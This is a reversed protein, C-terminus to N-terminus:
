YHIVLDSPINSTIIMDDILYFCTKNYLIKIIYLIYLKNVSIMTSKTTLKELRDGGSVGKMIRRNERWKEEVGVKNRGESM